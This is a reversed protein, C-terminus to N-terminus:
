HVQGADKLAKLALFDRQRVNECYGEETVFKFVVQDDPFGKPLQERGYIWREVKGKVSPDLSPSLMAQESVQMAAWNARGGPGPAAATVPGRSGVVRGGEAQNLNGFRVIKPPGLLVFVRGRDTLSGRTKETVFAQDAFAVRRLFEARTESRTQWFNEIFRAREADDRLRRWEAKEEATGLLTLEPGEGWKEVPREQPLEDRFTKFAPYAGDFATPREKAMAASVENFLRVFKADFKTEDIKNMNPSLFFFHELAERANAEANMGAFAIATYFHLAAMAKTRNPEPLAAADPVADQLVKVAAEFKKDAINQRGANLAAGPDGAFASTAILVVALTVILNRAISM